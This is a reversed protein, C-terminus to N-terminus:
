ISFFCMSTQRGTEQERTGTCHGPVCSPLRRLRPLGGHRSAPRERRQTGAAHAAAAVCRQTAPLSRAATGARGQHRLHDPLCNARRQTELPARTTVPGAAAMSPLESREMASQPSSDSSMLYFSYVRWSAKLACIQM